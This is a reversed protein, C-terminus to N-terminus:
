QRPPYDGEYAIIFNIGLYPQMNGHAEPSVSGTPSLAGAAMVVPQAAVTKGYPQVQPTSVSAAWVRNTPDVSTGPANTAQVAHTHSSVQSTNLTVGAAGGPVGIPSPTLGPGNGQGMLAYAQLNPLKFTSGGPVGGYLNGIVAYLTQYQAVNLEQGQCFFWGQPAFSGAFIRIEGVFPEM